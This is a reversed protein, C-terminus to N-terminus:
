GNEPVTSTKGPAAREDLEAQSIAGASVLKNLLSQLGRPSIDFKAMLMTDDMGAKICQVADAAEVVKKKQPFPSPKDHDVGIIVSTPDLKTRAQVESAPLIGAAILQSFLSQLAAASLNFKEMLERDTMGRRICRLAEIAKITTESGSMPDQENGSSSPLEHDRM